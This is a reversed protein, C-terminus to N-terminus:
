GKELVALPFQPLSRLSARKQPCCHQTRSMLLSGTRKWIALWHFWLSAPQPSTNSCFISSVQMSEVGVAACDVVNNKETASRILKSGTCQYERMQNMAVDAGGVLWVPTIVQTTAISPLPSYLAQTPYLNGLLTNLAKFPYKVMSNFIIITERAQLEKDTSNGDTCHSYRLISSM